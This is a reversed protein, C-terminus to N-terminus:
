QPNSSTTENFKKFTLLNHNLWKLANEQREKIKERVKENDWVHGLEMAIFSHENPMRVDVKKDLDTFSINVYYLYDEELSIMKNYKALVKRVYEMYEESYKM